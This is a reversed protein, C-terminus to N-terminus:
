ANTALTNGCPRIRFCGGAARVPGWRIPTRITQRVGVPPRPMRHGLAALRNDDARLALREDLYGSVHLEPFVVLDAEAGDAAGV